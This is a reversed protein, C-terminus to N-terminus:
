RGLLVNLYQDVVTEREFPLWSKRPPPPIEGDLAMEIAKALANVDGVPVLQGYQGDRLIERPGSPCDTAIIPVGCYLAEILVTPLGEWRSSLVFLSAQAMYAYPNEVFGPLRVDQQLGLERVLAELIPREEGEGLILLRSLHRQRARAFAGILTCFDKQKSLRGVALAVPPKGPQFWPHDPPALAKSRLEPTVVPNYIVEIRGDSIGTEHALDTAVGKSVAVISDAWPYFRKNLRPILKARWDHSQQVLISLTNHESVALRTTVGALRRAWLAVYNARNLASLMAKPQEHRLYRVLAPLSAITRSAKLDVLRVGGPLESLFPGLAQVLVLDLAYGRRAVGQLLNLMVRQAGGGVMDPIFFALRGRHHIM